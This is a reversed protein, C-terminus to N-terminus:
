PGALIEIRLWMSENPQLAESEDASPRYPAKVEFIALGRVAYLLWTWPEVDLLEVTWGRKIYGQLVSDGQDQQRRRIALIGQTSQWGGIKLHPSIEYIWNSSHTPVALQETNLNIHQLQQKGLLRIRRLAGKDNRCRLVAAPNVLANPYLLCVKHIPASGLNKILIDFTIRKGGDRTLYIREFAFVIEAPSEDSYIITCM